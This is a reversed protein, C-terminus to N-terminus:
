LSELVMFVLGSMLLGLGIFLAITLFLIWGGVEKAEKITQAVLWSMGGVILLGMIILGPIIFFM